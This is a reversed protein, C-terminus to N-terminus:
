RTEGTGLTLRISLTLSWLQPAGEGGNGKGAQSRYLNSSPIEARLWATEKICWKGKGRSGVVAPRSAKSLRPTRSRLVGGVRVALAIKPNM